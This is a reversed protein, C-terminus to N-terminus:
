YLLLADTFRCVLSCLTVNGWKGVQDRLMLFSKKKQEQELSFFEGAVGSEAALTRSIV